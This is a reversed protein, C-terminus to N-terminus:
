YPTSAVILRLWRMESSVGLIMFDSSLSSRLPSPAEKLKSTLVTEKRVHCHVCETGFARATRPLDEGYLVTEPLVATIWFFIVKFRRFAERLGKKVGVPVTVERGLPGSM